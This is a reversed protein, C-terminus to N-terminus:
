VTVGTSTGYGFKGNLRVTPSFHFGAPPMLRRISLASPPPRFVVPHLSGSANAEPYAPPVSIVSSSTCDLVLGLKGFNTNHGRFAPKTSTPPM